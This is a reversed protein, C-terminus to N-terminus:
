EDGLHPFGGGRLGVPSSSAIPASAPPHPLVQVDGLPPEVSTTAYLLLWLVLPQAGVSILAFLQRQRLDSSLSVIREKARGRSLLRHQGYVVLSDCHVKYLVSPQLPLHAALYVARTLADVTYGTVQVGSGLWDLVAVQLVRVLSLNTLSPVRARVLVIGSPQELALLLLDDLVGAAALTRCPDRRCEPISFHHTLPLAGALGPLGIAVLGWSGSHAGSLLLTPEPAAHSWIVASRILSLPFELAPVHLAHHQRLKRSFATVSFERDTLVAWYMEGSPVHYIGSFQEVAAASTALPGYHRRRMRRATAAPAVLVPHPGRTVTQLSSVQTEPNLILFAVRDQLISASRITGGLDLSPYSAKTETHLVWLPQGGTYAMKYAEDTFIISDGGGDGSGADLAFAPVEAVRSIAIDRARCHPELYGALCADCSEGGWFGRASDRFCRCVGDLWGCSGHGTCACLRDCDEGWYGVLCETCVPGAWHGTVNRQCVCAGTEPDCDAHPRPTRGLADAFCQSAECFTNCAAGYWHHDCACTANRTHGDLCRGHGHCRRNPPGPCKRACDAGGFGADCQCATGASIGHVCIHDCAAGFWGARCRGCAAGVWHGSPMDNCVCAATLLDCTGHGGCTPTGPCTLSCDPGAHGEACLCTADGAATDNCTGHASCIGLPGIPCRGGCDLTGYTPDCACSATTEDCVGHGLCPQTPGGPCTLACDAGVYGMDCLCTGRGRVWNECRGHGSCSCAAACGPGYVGPPCALVDCASGSVDCADSCAGANCFCQGAYCVGAGSCPASDAGGRPCPLLCSPGSWGRACTTCDAGAWHGRVADGDCLCQATAPDCVGHGHCLFLAGGPCTAACLTGAYGLACVCVAANGADTGCAGHGSCVTGATGRPCPVDCAIGTWGAACRECAPGTYHGTREAACDCALAGGVGSVCTGHGDCPAGTTSPCLLECARGGYGAVCTCQGDGTLGGNCRGRGHCPLGVPGHCLARCGGGYFGPVCAECAPGAWHGAAPSAACVCVGSGVRGDLCVGHGACTRGAPGGVPCSANCDAGYRGAECQGCAAGRWPSDCACAGTGARGDDCTGHGSCAYCAGGPCEVRCEPGYFHPLCETCNSAADWFGMDATEACVCTETEPDCTGHGGCLVASGTGRHCTRDCDPGLWLPACVDCLAGAWYGTLRSAHCLCAADASCRGHGGCVGVGTLLGPCPTSCLTGTWGHSCLCNGDGHRTDNCVGHGTCPVVSAGPCPVSCDAGAWNTDCVCTRGEVHGQYCVDACMDGWWGELCENCAAGAFNGTCICRAGDAVAVCTGQANCATTAAGWPCRHECAPGVYGPNCACVPHGGPGPRCTGRLKCPTQWGGPCQQGCDAGLFGPLCVCGDTQVSCFGQRNCAYLAGPCSVNCFPGSWSEVCLCTGSGRRGADCFGHGGCVAAGAVPCRGACAVGYLGPAPCADAACDTEACAPGCAGAHCVCQGGACLGSGSCPLGLPGRPCQDRCTPGSYGTSCTQCGAGAWYGAAPSQACICRGDAGCIGHGHCVVAGGPCLRDCLGGGWGVACECLGTAEVCVGHSGCDPCQVSCGPGSFGPACASCAVGAWQVDCACVARAESPAAVCRGQGGCPVGAASTPCSLNCAIGTFSLACACTGSGTLGDVCVGHSGCVAGDAEPCAGACDLGYFGARCRSCDHGTWFGRHRSADCACVGDGAAGDSCVGHGSCPSAAGGPCARACGAGYYAPACQACDAGAFYGHLADTHCVCAGSGSRGDDCRGHSSCPRCAGGPCVGSCDPGFRGTRCETCFPPVFHMHCLCVASDTACVGHGGCPTGTGDTPCRARCDPGTWSPACRDCADGAWHGTADSADCACGQGAPDCHGHRSCALPGVAPPCPVGCDAGSWGAACQCTGDHVRCEGHGQCPWAAGGACPMDCDEGAWGAHCICGTGTSRGSVCHRRCDTGHWGAACVACASGAWQAACRCRGLADCAGHGGCVSGASTPCSIECAAGAYGAGCACTGDQARCIGRAVGGCVPGSPSAQPCRLNCAPGAYGADCRCGGTVADCTGYGGCVAGGRASPCASCNAGGFGADCVCIEPGAAGGVCHGHGTCNGDPLREGLCRTSCDPGWRGETCLVCAASSTECRAGCHGAACLCTGASSCRGHGGCVEGSTHHRPCSLTCSTGAYGPACRGCDHGAWHGLMVSAACLCTANRADCHGHSNCPRTTNSGTLLFPLAYPPPHLPPPHIARRSRTFPM